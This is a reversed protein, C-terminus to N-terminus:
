KKKKLIVATVAIVAAVVVAGAGIIGWDRKSLGSGTGTGSQESVNESVSAPSSTDSNDTIGSVESEDPNDSVDGSDGATGYVSIESVWLFNGGISYQVKVYRAEVAKDLTLVFDRNDWGGNVEMEGGSLEGM